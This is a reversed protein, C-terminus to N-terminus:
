ISIEITEDRWQLIVRMSHIEVVTFEGFKQGVRVSHTQQTRKHLIIAQPSDGGIVGQLQLENALDPVIVNPEPRTRPTPPRVMRSRGLVTLDLATGAVEDVGDSTGSEAISPAEVPVDVVSADPAGPMTLLAVLPLTLWGLTLWIQWRTSAPSEGRGLTLRIWEAVFGIGARWTPCSVIRPAPSAAM